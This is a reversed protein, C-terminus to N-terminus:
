AAKKRRSQRAQAAKYPGCEAHQRRAAEIRAARFEADAWYRERVWAAKYAARTANYARERCTRTCYKIRPSNIAPVFTAGCHECARQIDAHWEPWVEAPHLHLHTALRDANAESITSGRARWARVTDPQVDVLEAVERATMHALLPAITAFPYRM